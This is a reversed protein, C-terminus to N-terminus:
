TPNHMLKSDWYLQRQRERETKDLRETSQMRSKEM